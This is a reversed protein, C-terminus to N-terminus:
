KQGDVDPVLAAYGALKEPTSEYYRKGSDLAAIEAMEGDTLAFDFIDANSAIHAPNKSGPIVIDGAQIHWRLIIQM